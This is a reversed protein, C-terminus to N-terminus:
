GLLMSGSGFRFLLIENTKTKKKSDRVMQLISIMCFGVVSNLM